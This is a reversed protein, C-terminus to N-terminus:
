TLQIQPHITDSLKKWHLLLSKHLLANEQRSARNSALVVIDLGQLQQRNLRFSDRILRKLRNRQVALRTNKKAIALGLRANNKGSKRYLVTFNSDSSKVAKAFVFKFDAATLLRDAQRFSFESSAM